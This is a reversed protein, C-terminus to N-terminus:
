SARGAPDAGRSLDDYDTGAQGPQRGAVLQELRAMIHHGDLSALPRSAPHVRHAPEEAVVEVGFGPGGEDGVDM